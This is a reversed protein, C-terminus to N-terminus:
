APYATLGHLAAYRVLDVVSAAGLRKQVAVKHTSVTKVSLNLAEAIETVSKGDVLQMFIDYQRSSLATHPENELVRARQPVPKRMVDRIAALVGNPDTEKNLYAAAGLALTREKHSAPDYSSVIVVRIGPQEDLVRSLLWLGGRGPMALDLLLVDIKAKRLLEITSVSDNAEGVVALASDSAVIGKLGARVIPHDDAIGIRVVVKSGESVINRIKM